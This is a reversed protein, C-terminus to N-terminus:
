YRKVTGSGKITGGNPGVAGGSYSCSGGSCSGTAGYAVGGGNSGTAKGGVARTKGSPTKVVRKYTCSDGSCEGHAEVSRSNGYPGTVSTNRDWANADVAAMSLATAAVAAFGLLTKM